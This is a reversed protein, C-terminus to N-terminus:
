AARALRIWRPGNGVDAITFDASPSWTCQQSGLAPHSGGSVGSRHQGCPEMGWSVGPCSFVCVCPSVLCPSTGCCGGCLGLATPAGAAGWHNISVSEGGARRPRRPSVGELTAARPGGARAAPEELRPRWAGGARRARSAAARAAAQLTAGCSEPPRRGTRLDADHRADGHTRAGRAGAGRRGGAREVAECAARATRRHRCVAVVREVVACGRCLPRSRAGSSLPAGSYCVLRAMSRRASPLRALGHEESCLASLVLWAGGLLPCVLRAM